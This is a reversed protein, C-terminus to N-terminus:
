SCSLFVVWKQMPLEEVEKAAAESWEERLPRRRIESFINTDTVGPCMVMVRVATRDFHYPLQFLWVGTSFM